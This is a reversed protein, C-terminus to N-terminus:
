CLKFICKTYVVHQVIVDRLLSFSASGNKLLGLAAAAVTLGNINKVEELGM